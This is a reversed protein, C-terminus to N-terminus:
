GAEEHKYDRLLDVLLRLNDIESLPQQYWVEGDAATITLRRHAIHYGAYRNWPLDRGKAHLGSSSLALTHGFSVTEGNTLQREVRERVALTVEIELRLTMKELRRYLSNLVIKEDKNTLITYELTSRRVLGGFYSVREGKQRITEVDEYRIFAINSGERYSFGHEYIVVERNWLHSIFWGVILTVVALIVVTMISATAAEVQWLAVTVVFWVVGLVAGGMLLLRLRDSPYNDIYKGLVPDDEFIIEDTTM